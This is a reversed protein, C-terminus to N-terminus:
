VFDEFYPSLRRFFWRGLLLIAAAVLLAVLDSIQPTPLGAELADRLRTVIYSMPNAEVWPRLDKPVLSLPYLIPALFFLVQMIPNLIHETDKLFVQLSAFLLAFGCAGVFLVAWLGAALPAGSATLPQGIAWLVLMVLTYGTAHLTFTAAVSAYVILEHPFAVKKILGAYAQIVVTGRLLAEQFALWPWLGIAVFLLFHRGTLEPPRFVITFIFTYVGLLLLPHLFAWFKGSVSGIYRTRLERRYFNGLLARHRLLPNAPGNPDASSPHSPM